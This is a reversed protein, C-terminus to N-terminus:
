LPLRMLDPFIVLEHRVTCSELVARVILAYAAALLISM